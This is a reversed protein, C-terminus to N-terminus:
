QGLSEIYVRTYMTKNHVRNNGLLRVDPTVPYSQGLVRIELHQDSTPSNKCFIGLHGFKASPRGYLSKPVNAGGMYSFRGYPLM